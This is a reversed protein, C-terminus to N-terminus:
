KCHALRNLKAALAIANVEETKNFVWTRSGSKQFNYTIIDSKSVQDRRMKLGKARMTMTNVGVSSCGLDKIPVQIDDRTGAAEQQEVIVTNGSLVFEVVDAGHHLTGLMQKALGTIPLLLLAIGLAYATCKMGRSNPM